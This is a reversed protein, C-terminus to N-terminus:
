KHVIRRRRQFLALAHWFQLDDPHITKVLETFEQQQTPNLRWQTRQVEVLAIYRRRRDRRNRMADWSWAGSQSKGLSRVFHFAWTWLARPRNALFATDSPRLYHAPIPKRELFFTGVELAPSTGPAEFKADPSSTRNLPPSTPATDDETHDRLLSWPSWAFRPTPLPSKVALLDRTTGQLVDTNVGAGNYRTDDDGDDRPLGWTGTVLQKESDFHGKYALELGQGDVRLVYRKLFSINAGSIKGEIVFDGIVDHGSGQFVGGGVDHSLVNFSVIGDLQIDSDACTTEGAWHGLLSAGANHSQKAFASELREYFPHRLDQEDQPGYFLANAALQQTANESPAIQKDLSYRQPHDAVSTPQYANSIVVHSSASYHVLASTGTDVDNGDVPSVAPASPAEV